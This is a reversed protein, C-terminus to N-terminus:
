LASPWLSIPWIEGYNLLRSCVSTARGHHFFAFPLGFSVGEMSPAEKKNRQWPPQLTRM